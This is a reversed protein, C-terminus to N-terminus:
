KKSIIEIFPMITFDKCVSFTKSDKSNRVSRPVDGGKSDLAKMEDDSENTSQRVKATLITQLKTTQKVRVKGTLGKLIFQNM